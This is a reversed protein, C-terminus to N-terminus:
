GARLCPRVAADFVEIEQPLLFEAHLAPAGADPPQVEIRLRQGSRSLWRSVELASPTLAFTFVSSDIWWGNVYYSTAGGKGLALSLLPRELGIGEPGEFPDSDFGLAEPIDLSAELVADPRCTVTFRAPATQEGVKADGALAVIRLASEAAPIVAVWGEPQDALDQAGAPVWSLVACTLVLGGLWRM